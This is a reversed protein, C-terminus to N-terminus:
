EEGVMEQKMAKRQIRAAEKAQDRQETEAARRKEEMEHAAVWISKDSKSWEKLKTVYEDFERERRDGQELNRQRIEPSFRERLEEPTPRIKEVLMPGGVCMIIGAGLMKIWTGATSSM